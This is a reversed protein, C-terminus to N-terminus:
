KAERNRGEATMEFGFNQCSSRMVHATDIQIFNYDEKKEVKIGRAHKQTHTKM